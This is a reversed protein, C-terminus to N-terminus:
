VEGALARARATLADLLADLAAQAEPPLAALLEVEYARAVPVIRRYTRRGARSLKLATRRRDAPDPTKDLHGAADLRGVARSVTVKDMATLGVIESAALEPYRGLVAMVRWEPITLGFRDQYRRAIERSVTNSLLSLRYPLYRELALIDGNAAEATSM